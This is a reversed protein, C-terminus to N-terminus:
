RAGESTVVAAIKRFLRILERREAADLTRLMARATAVRAGLAARYLARGRATLAVRVMRRNDEPRERRVVDRAGLSDVVRTGTSLPLRLRRALEGMPMPGAAGVTDLVGIERRSFREEARPLDQTLLLRRVVRDMHAVLERAHGDLTV